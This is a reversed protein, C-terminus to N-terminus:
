FFTKWGSEKKGAQECEYDDDSQSSLSTLRHGFVNIVSKGINVEFIIPNEREREVDGGHVIKM